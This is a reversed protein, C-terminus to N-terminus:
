FDFHKSSAEKLIADAANSKDPTINSKGCYPCIKTSTADKTRSFKYGCALCKYKVKQDTM